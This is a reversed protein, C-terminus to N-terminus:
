QLRLVRKVRQRGCQQTQRTLTSRHDSNIKSPVVTMTRSNPQSASPFPYRRQQKRPCRSYCQGHPSVSHHQIPKQSLSSQARSCKYSRQSGSSVLSWKRNPEPLMCGLRSQLRRLNHVARPCSSQHYQRKRNSRQPAVVSTRHSCQQKLVPNDRLQRSFGTPIKHATNKITQLAPTGALHCPPSSGIDRHPKGSHSSISHSQSHSKPMQEKHGPDKERRSQTVNDIFRHLPGYVDIVSHPSPLVEGVKHHFSAVAPPRTNISHKSKIRRHLLGPNPLRRPLRNNSYRKEALLSSRTKTDKYTGQPSYKAWVTPKPLCLM